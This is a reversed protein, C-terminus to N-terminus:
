ARPTEVVIGATVRRRELALLNFTRCAAHSGMVEVGVGRQHLPALLAPDPFRQHLGTGLLIVDPQTELLMLLHDRTLADGARPPWPHLDRPTLILSHGYRRGSVVIGGPQWRDITVGTTTEMTLHMM